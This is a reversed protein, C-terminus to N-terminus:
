AREANQAANAEKHRRILRRCSRIEFWISFLGLGTYVALLLWVIPPTPGQFPVRQAVYTPRTMSFLLAVEGLSWSQAAVRGMLGPILFGFPTPWCCAVAEM